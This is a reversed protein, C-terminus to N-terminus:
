PKKVPEKSAAPQMTAAKPKTAAAMMAKPHWFDAAVKAIEDPPNSLDPAFRYLASETTEVADANIQQFKKFREEGLIERLTPNHDFGGM